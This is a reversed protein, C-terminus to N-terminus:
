TALDFCVLEDQGRAYVRGGYILPTAYIESGEFVQAKALLRVGAPTAQAVSMRGRSSMLLLRDGVRVMSGGWGMRLAPDKAEWVLTGEPFRFCKLTGLSNLYAYGRDLIPPQFYCQADRNTWVREASRDYLRLMMSGQGEASTIWLHRDAFVPQTCNVEHKTAWPEQWITRGTGPDMAYVSQSAFVILQRTGSVDALIPNAYGATERAESEWAIGTCDRRVAVATPGGEGAQLYIHAETVLPNCAVGWHLNRSGTATLINIRARNQGTTLDRCILDGSGGYTYVTDNVVVPSARTGPHSGSWGGDSADQWRVGGTPADFATLVERGDLLGFAFVTSGVAVPSAYGSGVVASWV